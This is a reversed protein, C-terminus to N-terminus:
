GPLGCRDALVRLRGQVSTPALLQLEDVLRRTRPRCRVEEPAEAEARLVTTVAEHYRGAQTYGHAVDALLHARRERPASGRGPRPHDPRSRGRPCGGGASRPRGGPLPQLQDPRVRDM